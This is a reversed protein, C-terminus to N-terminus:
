GSSCATKESTAARPRARPTWRMRPVCRAAPTIRSLRRAFQGSRILRRTVSGASLRATMPVSSAAASGPLPSPLPSASRRRAPSPDGCRTRMARESRRVDGVHDRRRVTGRGPPGPQGGERGCRVRRAAARARRVAREHEAEGVLRVPLSLPRDPHADGIAPQQDDATRARALRGRERDDRRLRPRRDHAHRGVASPDHSATASRISRGGAAPATTTMSSRSVSAARSGCSWACSSTSRRSRTKRPAPSDPTRTTADAWRRVPTVRAARPGAAVGHRAASTTAHRDSRRPRRDRASRVPNGERARSARRRRRGPRSPAAPAAGRRSRAARGHDGAEGSVPNTERREGAARPARAAHASRPMRMAVSSSYAASGLMVASPAPRASRRRRVVPLPM